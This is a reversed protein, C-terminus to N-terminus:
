GDGILDSVHLSNEDLKSNVRLM